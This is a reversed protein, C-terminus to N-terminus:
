TNNDLVTLPNGTGTASFAQWATQCEGIVTLTGGAFVRLCGGLATTSPTLTVAQGSSNMSTAPAIFADITGPNSFTIQTRSPNAPAVQVPTTTLNNYAYCKGGSTPGVSPSAGVGAFTSPM